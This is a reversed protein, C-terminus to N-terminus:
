EETSDTSIGCMRMEGRFVQGAANKTLRLEKQIIDQTKKAIVRSSRILQLRETGTKDFAINQAARRTNITEIWSSTYKQLGTTVVSDRKALANKACSPDAKKLENKSLSDKDVQTKSPLYKETRDTRDKRDEIRPTRPQTSTAKTSTATSTATTSTANPPTTVTANATITLVLALVLTPILIKKM